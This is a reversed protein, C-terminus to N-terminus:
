NIAHYDGTRVTFDLCNNEILNELYNIVEPLTIVGLDKDIEMELEITVVAM